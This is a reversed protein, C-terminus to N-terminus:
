HLDVVIGATIGSPPRVEISHDQARAIPSVTSAGASTVAYSNRVFTPAAPNTVYDLTWSGDLTWPVKRIVSYVRDAPDGTAGSAKTINTWLLFDARFEHRYRVTTLVANANGPHTAPFTRGPSDICWIEMRQGLKPKKTPERTQSRTMTVTDGGMGNGPRGSDLLPFAYLVPAPDAAKFMRTPGGGYLGTAAAQNSAYRFAFNHVKAPAVTNDTYTAQHIHAQTQNQLGGFVKDLGLKGDKGGGVIEVVLNMTMADKGEVKFATTSWGGTSVRFAAPTITEPTAVTTAASKDAGFLTVDVLILNMPISPELDEYEKTGNCDIFPRVRFSGKADASLECETFKAANRKRTPKEDPKGIKKDDDPNRVADWEIPLGAPKATLELLIDPQANRILVLPPNATFDPDAKTAEFTHDAPAATPPTMAASNAPTNAPTSKITAKIKTFEVVTLLVTDANKKADDKLHLFYGADRLAASTVKGQVWLKKDENKVASLDYEKPAAVLAGGDKALEKDYLETKGGPLTEVVVTGKFDEPLVKRVVLLARGHFTTDQKHVFRGTKVKDEESLAAPDSKAKIQAKTRTGCIDLVLKVASAKVLDAEDEVGAVGVTFGSGRWKKSPSVGQAWLITGAAKAADITFPLATKQAPKTPDQETFADLSGDMAKVVVKGDFDAPKVEKIVLKAREFHNAKDQVLVDRGVFAKEDNSLAPASAPDPQSKHLDLTVEVSTIKHTDPGGTPKSGGSLSLKVTIDEKKDSPKQAEAWVTVGSSITAGKPAWAPASNPKFVNATGDFKIETGAKEASFFKVKDPKDCEFTATGDFAADTKLSLSKRKPHTYPEEANTKPNKAKKQVVIVLMPPEILPNVPTPAPPQPQPGPPPLPGPGKGGGENSVARYAFLRKQDIADAISQMEWETEDFGLGGHFSYGAAEAIDALSHLINPHAMPPVAQKLWFKADKPALITAGKPIPEGVMSLWLGGDGIGLYVTRKM